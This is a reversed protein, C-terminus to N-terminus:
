GNNVGPVIYENIIEDTYNHANRNGYNTTTIVLVVDLEPIALVKQGGNGAMAYSRYQQEKGFAKLWFLYGYEVGDRVKAKPTTAKQIWSKDMIQQGNWAGGNLCMQILKLFDRSQYESGGATNLIGEPNYHIKYEKIELPEFLHQKAFEVVDMGVAKQVIEAMTASGASCYSFSRGYPQDEPKPEFPYSRIPLDVFFSTWDEIPYMREENGRSFSNFDNCELMSSMTLLDEITIELKRPDPYEVPTKHKLYTFIKDKESKIHGNKIAIGTLLTAMTKTASRTNHKSNQDAGNYYKEFLVRGKQAILVSTIREYKGSQIASDMNDFYENPTGNVKSFDLQGMIMQFSFLFTLPILSTKYM